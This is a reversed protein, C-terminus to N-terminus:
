VRAKPMTVPKSNKSQLVKDLPTNTLKSELWFMMERSATLSTGLNQKDHEVLRDHLERMKELVEKKSNAKHIKEFFQIVEQESDAVKVSKRFWDRVGAAQGQLLEINKIEYQLMLWFIRAV